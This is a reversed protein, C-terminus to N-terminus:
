SSAGLAKAAETWERALKFYLQRRRPDVSRDAERACDKAHEEYLKKLASIM